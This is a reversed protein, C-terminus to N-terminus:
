CNLLYAKNIPTCSAVAVDCTDQICLIPRTMCCVTWTVYLICSDHGIPRHQEFQMWTHNLLNSKCSSGETAQVKFLYVQSSTQVLLEPRAQQVLLTQAKKHLDRKTKLNSELPRLLSNHVLIELSLSSLIIHLLSTFCSIM